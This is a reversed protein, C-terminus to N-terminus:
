KKQSEAFVKHRQFIQNQPQLCFDKQCILRRLNKTKGIKFAIQPTSKM